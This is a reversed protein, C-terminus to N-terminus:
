VKFIKFGAKAFHNDFTAVNTLELRKMVAFSTCDTFSLKAWPKEFWGWAEKEDSPMLRIIKQILTMDFLTEKFKLALPLGSRVRILTASEDVIFNTTIFFWKDKKFIEYQKIAQSYFDDNVDILAKYWSTDVFIRNSTM